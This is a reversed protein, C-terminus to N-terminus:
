KCNEGQSDSCERGGGNGAGRGSRVVGEPGVAERNTEERARDGGERDVGGALEVELESGGTSSLELRFDLVIRGDVAGDAVALNGRQGAHRSM